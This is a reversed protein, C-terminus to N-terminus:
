KKHRTTLFPFSMFYSSVFTFLTQSLVTMLLLVFLLTRRNPAKRKGDYKLVFIGRVDTAYSYDATTRCIYPNQAHYVKM